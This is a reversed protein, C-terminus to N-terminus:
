TTEQGASPARSRASSYVAPTAKVTTWQDGVTKQWLKHELRDTAHDLHDVRRQLFESLKELHEAFWNNFRSRARLFFIEVRNTRNQMVKGRM